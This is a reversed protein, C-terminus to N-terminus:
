ELAKQQFRFVVFEAPRTPAVGVDCTL